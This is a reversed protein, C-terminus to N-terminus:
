RQQRVSHCLLNQQQRMYVETNRIGNQVSANSRGSLHKIETTLCLAEHYVPLWLDQFVLKSICLYVVMIDAFCNAVHIGIAAMVSPKSAAAVCGPLCCRQM